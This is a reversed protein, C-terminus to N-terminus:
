PTKPAPSAPTKKMFRGTKPDRPPMAKKTAMKPTMKSTMKMKTGMKGMMKSPAPTSKMFKGTKPDRAPMKKAMKAPPAPSAPAKDQAIAAGSVSAVAIGAVLLSLFNRKMFMRLVEDILTQRIEQRIWTTHWRTSKRRKARIERSNLSNRSYNTGAEYGKSCFQTKSAPLVM